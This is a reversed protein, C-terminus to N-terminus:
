DANKAVDWTFGQHLEGELGNTLYVKKFGLEKLRNWDLNNALGHASVRGALVYTIVLTTSDPGTTRTTSEIRRELLRQDLEAAYDKRLFRQEAKTPPTLKMNGVNEAAPVQSPRPAPNDSSVAIVRAIAFIVVAVLAFKVLSWIGFTSKEPM